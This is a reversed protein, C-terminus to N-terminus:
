LGLEAKVTAWPIMPKSGQRAIAEDLDRLDELDEIRASLRELKAQLSRLTPRRKARLRKSTPKKATRLPM